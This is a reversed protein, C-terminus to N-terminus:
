LPPPEGERPRVFRGIGGVTGQAGQQSQPVLRPLRSQAVEPRVIRSNRLGPIGALSTGRDSLFLIAAALLTALSVLGAVQRAGDGGFAVPAAAVGEDTAQASDEPQTLEVVEEAPPDQQQADPDAVEPAQAERPEDDAEAGTPAPATDLEGPDAVQEPPDQEGTEPEPPAGAENFGEEEFGNADDFGDADFDDFGGGVDLSGDHPAEFSLQFPAGGEQQAASTETPLPTEAADDPEDGDADPLLVVDLVGDELLPGVEFAWLENDEDRMGSVQGAECDAEPREDWAAAETGSWSTAARCARVEAVEGGQESDVELVLTASVVDDEGVEFRLASVATPGEVDQGVALGDEPVFPPRPLDLAGTQARWWWGHEDHVAEEAAVPAGLLLLGAGVVLALVSRWGRM